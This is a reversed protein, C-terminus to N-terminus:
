RMRLDSVRLIESVPVGMGENTEIVKLQNTKILWEVERYRIELIRAATTLSLPLSSHEELIKRVNPEM